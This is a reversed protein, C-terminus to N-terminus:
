RSRGSQVNLFLSARHGSGQMHGYVSAAGAGKQTIIRVPFGGRPLEIRLDQSSQLARQAQNVVFSAAERKLRQPHPVTWFRFAVGLQAFNQIINGVIANAVPVDVDDAFL